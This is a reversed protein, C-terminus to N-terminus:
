RSLTLNERASHHRIILFLTHHLRKRDPTYVHRFVMSCTVAFESDAGVAGHIGALREGLAAYRGNEITGLEDALAIVLVVVAIGRLELVVIHGLLDLRQWFVPFDSFAEIQHLLNHVEVLFLQRMDFRCSM